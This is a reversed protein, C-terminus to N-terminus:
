FEDGFEIKLCEEVTEKVVTEDALYSQIRVVRAVVIQKDTLRGKPLTTNLLSPTSLFAFMTRNDRGANWAQVYQRILAGLQQQLVSEPKHAPAKAQLAAAKEGTLLAIKSISTAGYPGVLQQKASIRSFLQMTFIYDYPAFEWPAIEFTDGDVTTCIVRYSNALPANFWALRNPNLWAFSSGILLFAIVCNGWGFRFDDPQKLVFFFASLDILIWLWFSYGYMMWAGIHFVAWMPLLFLSIRRVFVLVAGCEILLVIIQLPIAFPALTKTLRAVESGSMSAMWGHSWSGFLSYHVNPVTIWGSRLKGLGPVLYYSALVVVILLVTSSSKSPKSQRRTLTGICIVLLLQIPLRYIGLLHRDWGYGSVPFAFQGGVAIALVLFPIMLFPHVWISLALILLLSRDFVYEQGFFLNVPQGVLTVAFMLGLGTAFWRFLRGDDVAGWSSIARLRKSFVCVMLLAIVLTLLVPQDLLNSFLSTALVTSKYDAKPLDGVLFLLKKALLFGIWHFILPAVDRLVAPVIAKGAQLRADEAPHDPLTTM